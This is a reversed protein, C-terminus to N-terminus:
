EADSKPTELETSNYHEGSGFMHRHYTIILKDKEKNECGIVLESGEAQVVEILVNLVDSLAKLELQGGWVITDKIKNCYEEYKEQDLFDGDDTTVYPQFEDPNELMYDCTIERLEQCTKILSSHKQLQDSVAYYMCNGDSIVEKIRLGKKLLKDKIKNLELAAPGKKNEIEQLAIM